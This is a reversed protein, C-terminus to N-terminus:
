IELHLLELPIWEGTQVDVVMKREWGENKVTNCGEVMQISSLDVFYLNDLPIHDSFECLGDDTVRKIITAKVINM